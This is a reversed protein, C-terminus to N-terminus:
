FNIVYNLQELMGEESITVEKRAVTEGDLTIYMTIGYPEFITGDASTDDKFSLEMVTESAVNQDTFAKSYPLHENSYSQDGVIIGKGEIACSIDSVRSNDSSIINFAIDVNEIAWSEGDDDSSCASILLVCVLLTLIKKMKKFKKIEQHDM